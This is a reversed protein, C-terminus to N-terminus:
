RVHGTVRKTLDATILRRLSDATYVTRSQWLTAVHEQNRRRKPSGWFWKGNSCVTFESGGSVVNFCWQSRFLLDAGDPRIREERCAQSVEGGIADLAEIVSWMSTLQDNQDRAVASKAARIEDAIGMGTM